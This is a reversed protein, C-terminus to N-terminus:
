LIPPAIFFRGVGGGGRDCGLFVFSWPPPPPTCWVGGGMCQDSCCVSSAYTPMFLCYWLGPARVSRRTQQGATELFSNKENKKQHSLPPSVFIPPYSLSILTYSQYFLVGLRFNEFM